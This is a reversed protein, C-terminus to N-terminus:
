ETQMRALLDQDRFIDRFPEFVQDPYTGRANTFRRKDEDNFTEYCFEGNGRRRKIGRRREFDIYAVANGLLLCASMSQQLRTPPMRFDMQQTWMTFADWVVDKPTRQDKSGLVLYMLKLFLQALQDASPKRRNGRINNSDDDNSPALSDLDVIGGAAAVKSRGDEEAHDETHARDLQIEAHEAGWFRPCGGDSETGDPTEDEISYWQALASGSSHSKVSHLLMPVFERKHRRQAMMVNTCVGAIATSGRVDHLTKMEYPDFGAPTKRPHHTVIGTADIHRCLAKLWVLWSSFESSNEDGPFNARITDVIVIEPRSQFCSVAFRDREEPTLLTAWSRDDNPNMSHVAVNDLPVGWSAMRRRLQQPNESVVSVRPDTSRISLPPGPMEFRSPNVLAAVFWALLHSKGVGPDGCVMALEGREFWPWM